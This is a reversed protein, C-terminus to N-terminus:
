PCRLILGLVCISWQMTLDPTKQKQEASFEIRKLVLPHRAAACRCDVARANVAGIVILEIKDNDKYFIGSCCPYSHRAQAVYYLVFIRL